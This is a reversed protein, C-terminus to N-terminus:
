MATNSLNMIYSRLVVVPGTDQFTPAAAKTYNTEQPQQAPKLHSIINNITNNNNQESFLMLMWFCHAPLHRM